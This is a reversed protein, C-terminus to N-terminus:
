QAEETLADLGLHERWAQHAEESTMGVPKSPPGPPNKEETLAHLLLDRIEVLLNFIANRESHPADNGYISHPFKTVMPVNGGDASGHWHGDTTTDGNCWCPGVSIANVDDSLKPEVTM